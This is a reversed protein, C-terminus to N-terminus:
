PVIQYTVRSVLVMRDFRVEVDSFFVVITDLIDIEVRFRFRSRTQVYMQHMSSVARALLNLSMRNVTINLSCVAM